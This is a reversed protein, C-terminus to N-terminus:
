NGRDWQTFLKFSLLNLLLLQSYKRRELAVLWPYQSWLPLWCRNMKCRRKRAPCRPWNELSSFHSHLKWQKAPSLAPMLASGWQHYHSLPYCMVLTSYQSVNYVSVAAVHHRCNLMPAPLLHSRNYQLISLDAESFSLQIVWCRYSWM